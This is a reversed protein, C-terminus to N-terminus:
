IMFTYITGLSLLSILAIPFITKAGLMHVANDIKREQIDEVSKGKFMEPNEQIKKELEKIAEPNQMTAVWEQKKRERFESDIKAFYFVLFVASIIAFVVSVILGVKIDSLLSLGGKKN